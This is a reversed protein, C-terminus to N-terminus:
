IFDLLPSECALTLIDFEEITPHEEVLVHNTSIPEIFCSTPSTTSIYASLILTIESRIWELLQVEYLLPSSIRASEYTSEMRVNYKTPSTCQVDRNPEEYYSSLDQPPSRTAPPSTVWQSCQPHTSGCSM